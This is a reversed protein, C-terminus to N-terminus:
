VIYRLIGPKQRSKTLRAVTSPPMAAMGAVGQLYVECRGAGDRAAARGDSQSSLGNESPQEMPGKADDIVPAPNRRGIDAFRKHLTGGGIHYRIAKREDVHLLQGGCTRGLEDYWVYLM